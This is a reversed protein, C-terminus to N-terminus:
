SKVLRIITYGIALGGILLALFYLWGFWQGMVLAFIFISLGTMYNNMRFKAAAYTIFGIAILSFILWGGAFTDVLQSQLNLPEIFVM